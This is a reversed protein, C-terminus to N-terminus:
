TSRLQSFRRFTDSIAAPFGAGRGVSPGVGAGLVPFRRFARNMSAGSIFGGFVEPLIRARIGQISECRRPCLRTSGSLFAGTVSPTGGRFTSSRSESRSHSFARAFPSTKVRAFLMGPLVMDSVYEAQGTLKETADLRLTERGVQRLEAAPTNELMADRGPAQARLM